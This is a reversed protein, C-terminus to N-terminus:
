VTPSYSLLLLENFDKQKLVLDATLYVEAFALINPYTKVAEARSSVPKSKGPRGLGLKARNNKKPPPSGLM